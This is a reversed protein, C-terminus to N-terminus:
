GFPEIRETLMAGRPELGFCPVSMGIAEGIRLALQAQLGGAGKGANSVIALHGSLVHLM